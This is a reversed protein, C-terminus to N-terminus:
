RSRRHAILFLPTLFVACVAYSALTGWAAGLAPFAFRAALIFVILGSFGVPMTRGVSGLFAPGRYWHLILFASLIAGPFASFVGGWFPGLIKSFAVAIGIIIGSLAARLAKQRATYRVAETKQERLLRAYVRYAGASLLAFVALAPLLSSVRFVALPTSLALWVAVSLGAAFLIDQPHNTGRARAAWIYTMSFVLSACVGLVVTPTVLAVQAPGIIWGIFLFSVGTTSPLTLILGAAKAPVREALSSQLAVFLGGVVASVLIQAHLLSM